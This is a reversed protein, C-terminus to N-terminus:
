YVSKKWHNGLPFHGTVMIFGAKNKSFDLSYIKQIPRNESKM